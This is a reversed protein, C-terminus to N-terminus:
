CRIRPPPNRFIEWASRTFYKEATNSYASTIRTMPNVLSGAHGFSNRTVSPTRRRNRFYDGVRRQGSRGCTAPALAFRFAFQRTLGNSSVSYPARQFFYGDAGSGNRRNRPAAPLTTASDDRPIFNSSAWHIGPKVPRITETRRKCDTISPAFGEPVKIKPSASKRTVQPIVFLPVNLREGLWTRKPQFAGDYAPLTPSFFDSTMAGDGKRRGDARTPSDGSVRLFKIASFEVWGDPPTPKKPNSVMANITRLSHLTIVHDHHSTRNGSHTPRPIVM